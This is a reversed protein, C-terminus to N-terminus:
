ESAAESACDEDLDRCRRGELHIGIQSLLQDLCAGSAPVCAPIRDARERVWQSADESVHPGGSVGLLLNWETLWRSQYDALPKAYDEGRLGGMVADALDHAELFGVNMSQIGAPSTLHASDGALWVRDKGYLDTLRREFRLTLSWFIEGIESDFWPAREAVLAGLREGRLAPYVGSGLQCLLRSKARDRVPEDAADLQFSWRARRPGIPWLVNTSHDDLDLRLENQVIGSTEFEFVGMLLTQGLDRYDAGLDRRVVSRHGDAGIVFQSTFRLTRDVVWETTAVGYGASDKGLKEIVTVVGSSDQELSHVRHNWHVKVGRQELAEELAHELQQQPLLLLFPFRTELAEYRLECSRTAGDYFAVTDIQHGGEILSEALGLEDLLELSRPHLACAYSRQTTRWASDAVFVDHGGRALLNAAYLGVPGAGSVVVETKKKGFM